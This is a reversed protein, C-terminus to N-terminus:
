VEVIHTMGRRIKLGEGWQSRGGERCVDWCREKDWTDATCSVTSQGERYEGGLLCGKRVERLEFLLLMVCELCSIIKVNNSSAEKM